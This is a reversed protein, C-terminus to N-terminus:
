VKYGQKATFLDSWGNVASWIEEDQVITGGHIKQISPGAVRFHEKIVISNIDKENQGPRYWVNVLPRPSPKENSWQDKLYMYLDNVSIPNDRVHIEKTQFDIWVNSLQRVAGIIDQPPLLIKSNIRMINEAHVIAPAM